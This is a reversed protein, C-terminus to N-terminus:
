TFIHIYRFQARIDWIDEAEINKKHAYVFLPSMWTFFLRSFPNAWGEPNVIDTWQVTDMDKQEEAAGRNMHKIADDYGIVPGEIDTIVKTQAGDTAKEEVESTQPVAEYPITRSDFEERSVFPDFYMVLILLAQTAWSAAFTQIYFYRGPSQGLALQTPWRICYCVFVWLYCFRSVWQGFYSFYLIEVFNMVSMCLWAVLSLTYVLIQFRAPGSLSGLLCCSSVFNTVCCLLRVIPFALTEKDRKYKGCLICQRIRYIGLFLMVVFIPALLITDEFCPQLGLLSLNTLAEKDVDNGDSCVSDLARYIDTSASNGM